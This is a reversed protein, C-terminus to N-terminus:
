YDMQIPRYNQTATKGAGWIEDLYSAEGVMISDLVAGADGLSRMAFPRAFAFTVIVNPREALAYSMFFVDQGNNTVMPGRQNYYFGASGALALFEARTTAGLRMGQGGVPPAGATRFSEMYVIPGVPYGTVSLEMGGPLVWRSLIFRGMQQRVVPPGLAQVAAHDQGVDLGRFDQAQSGTSIVTEAVISSLTQYIKNRVFYYFPDPAAM